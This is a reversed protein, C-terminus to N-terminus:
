SILLNNCECNNSLDCSIWLFGYATYFKSNVSRSIKRFAARVSPCKDNTEIDFIFRAAESISNFYYISSQNVAIVTKSNARQISNSNSTTNIGFRNHLIKGITHKNVGIAKEIDQLLWGADYLIKMAQIQYENLLPKGVGGLATNYGDFVSNYYQIWYKERESLINNDCEEIVEFKFNEFGIERMAKIIKFNYEKCNENLYSKKYDNIRVNLNRTTMGIYVKNNINNTIKYIIGM